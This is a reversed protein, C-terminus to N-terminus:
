LYKVPKVRGVKSKEAFGASFGPIDEKETEVKFLSSARM